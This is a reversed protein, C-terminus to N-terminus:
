YRYFNCEINGNYFRRSKIARMKVSDEFKKYGSLVYRDWSSYRNLLINIEGCLENMYKKDGIREGYPPNTVMIGNQAKPLNEKASCVSVNIYKEVGAREAHFKTMEVMEKSIDAGFIEIPLDKIKTRANYRESDFIKKDVWKFNEAAFEREAGPAINLAIMAAEILLTGSGCFPDCFPRDGRYGSIELLGAAFTERLPAVANKVRYGRKHLSTGCCDLAVTVNDKLIHIDIPYEKGNESLRTANKKRLMSKVIAMKSIRQTDPVSMLQSRACKASVNIRGDDSIISNWDLKTINDFLMDFTTANFSAIERMVRDGCRLNICAKALEKVGGEFYVKGETVSIVNLDLRELQNRVSKEMSFPTTVFFRM